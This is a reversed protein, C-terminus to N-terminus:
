DHAHEKGPFTGQAEGYFVLHPISIAFDQEALWQKQEATFRPIGHAQCAEHQRFEELSKARKASNCSKCALVVNLPGDGGGSSRPIIHDVNAQTCPDVGQAWGGRETLAGCYQCRGEFKEYLYNLLASNNAKAM